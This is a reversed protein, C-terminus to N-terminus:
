LRRHDSANVFVLHEQIQAGDFRFEISDEGGQKLLYALRRDHWVGFGLDFDNLIGVRSTFNRLYVVFPASVRPALLHGANQFTEAM